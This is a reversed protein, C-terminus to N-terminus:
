RGRRISAILDSWDDDTVEVWETDFPSDGYTYPIERILHPRGDVDTRPDLLVGDDTTVVADDMHLHGGTPLGVSRAIRDIVTRTDTTAM